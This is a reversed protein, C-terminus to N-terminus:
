NENKLNPNLMMAKNGYPLKWWNISQLELRARLESRKGAPAAAVVRDILFNPNNRRKAIRVLDYWRYGEFALEAAREEMIADEMEEATANTQLPVLAGASVRTRSKRLVDLATENIGLRASAEAGRYYLDAVRCININGAGKQRDTGRREGESTLGIYKWILTDQGDVYYSYGQGRYKDIINIWNVIAPRSPKVIYQEGWEARNSTVAGLTHVQNFKGGDDGSETDFALVLGQVTWTSRFGEKAYRFHADFWYKGDDFQTTGGLNFSDNWYERSGNPQEQFVEPDMIRRCVNRSWAEDFKDRYILIDALLDVGAAINVTEHNWYVPMSAWSWNNWLHEVAWNLDKELQDLIQDEPVPPLARVDQATYVPETIFPVDGWNKVLNLYAWARLWYVEGIMHNYWHDEFDPSQKKIVPLSVLADNCRNILTYFGSWDLYKNDPSINHEMFEYMDPNNRAGRAPTVLDGRLEGLVFNQEVLGQMTEYLGIKIAWADGLVSYIENRAVSDDSDVDLLSCSAMCAMLICAVAIKLDNKFQLMKIIKLSLM